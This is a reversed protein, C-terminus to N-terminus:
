LAGGHALWCFQVFAIGTMLGLATCVILQNIHSM